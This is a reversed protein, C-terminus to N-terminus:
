GDGLPSLLFQSAPTVTRKVFRCTGSSDFTVIDDHDGLNMSGKAGPGSDLSIVIALSRVRFQGSGLDQVNVNVSFHRAVRGKDRREQALSLLLAAFAERGQTTRRPTVFQAEEELLDAVSEGRDVRGFFNDVLETIRLRATLADPAALNQNMIGGRNLREENALGTAPGANMAATLGEADNANLGAEVLRTIASKPDATTTGPTTSRNQAEVVYRCQECTATASDAAFVGQAAYPAAISLGCATFRFAEREGVLVHTSHMLALCSVM